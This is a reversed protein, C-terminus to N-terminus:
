WEVDAADVEVAISRQLLAVSLVLRNMGKLRVLIGEIGSLPGTQVRMRQGAAIFEWPEIRDSVAVTQRIAEVEADPIYVPGHSDNVIRIVDPVTVIKATVGHPLQCFVYGPFLAKDLCKVRDSWRRVHRCSPAFVEYGRSRLRTACVHERGARVQTAVWGCSFPSANIGTM